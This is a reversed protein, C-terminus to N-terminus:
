NSICNKKDFNYKNKQLFLTRIITCDEKCKYFLTKNCLVFGMM